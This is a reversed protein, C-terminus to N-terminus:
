QMREKIADIVYDICLKNESRGVKEYVHNFSLKKKAITLYRYLGYFAASHKKYNDDKFLFDNGGLLYLYDPTNGNGTMKTYYRVSLPSVTWSKRLIQNNYLSENIECEGKYIQQGGFWRMHSLIFPLDDKQLFESTHIFGHTRSVDYCRENSKLSERWDMDLNTAGTMWLTGTFIEPLFGRPINNLNDYLYAIQDKTATFNHVDFLSAGFYMTKYDNINFLKNIM